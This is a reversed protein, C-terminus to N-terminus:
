ALCGRLQAQSLWTSIVQLQLLMSGARIETCPRQRLQWIGCFIYFMYLIAYLSLSLGLCISATHTMHLTDCPGDWDWYRCNPDGHTVPPHGHRNLWSPGALFVVSAEFAGRHWDSSTVADHRLLSCCRQESSQIQFTPTQRM